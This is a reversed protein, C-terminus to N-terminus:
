AGNCTEEQWRKRTVSAYVIGGEIRDVKAGHVSGVILTLGSGEPWSATLREADTNEFMWQYAKNQAGVSKEWLWDRTFGGTVKYFKPGSRVYLMFGKANVFAYGGFQELLEKGNLHSWGVADMHKKLTKMNTTRKM